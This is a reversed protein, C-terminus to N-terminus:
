KNELPSLEYILYGEPERKVVSLKVKMGIRTKSAEANLWALVNVEGFKAIGVIYDRYHSFSVPKVNIITYSILEGEGKIEVERLGSVKCKTCDDQPPFYITNCKDCKTAVVKGERLREFFKRIKGIPIQYRLTLERVDVWLPNGTKAESIIPLGTLKVLDDLQKLQKVVEQDIGEKVKSISM